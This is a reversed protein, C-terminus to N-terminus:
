NKTAEISDDTSQADVYEQLHNLIDEVEMKKLDYLEDHKVNNSYHDWHKRSKRIVRATIDFEMHDLLDLALMSVKYSGFLYHKFLEVYKTSLDYNELTPLLDGAISLNEKDQIAELVLELASQNEQIHGLTVAAIYRTELSEHKLLPVIMNVVETGGITALSESAEYSADNVEGTLQDILESTNM